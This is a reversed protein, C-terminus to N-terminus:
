RSNSSARKRREEMVITVALQANNASMRADAREQIDRQYIVPTYADTMEREQAACPARTAIAVSTPDSRGDDLRNATARLCAIYAATFASKEDSTATACGSLTLACLAVATGARVVETKM